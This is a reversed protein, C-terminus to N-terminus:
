RRGGRLAALIEERGVRRGTPEYGDLIGLCTGDRHVGGGAYVIRVTGNGPNQPDTIVAEHELARVMLGTGSMARAILWQAADAQRKRSAPVDNGTLM